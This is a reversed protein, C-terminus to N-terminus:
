LNISDGTPFYEGDQYSYIEGSNVDVIRLENIDTRKAYSGFTVASVPTKNYITYEAPTNTSIANYAAPVGQGECTFHRCKVQNRKINNPIATAIWNEELTEPRLKTNCFKFLECGQCTKSETIM